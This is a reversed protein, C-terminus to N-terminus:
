LPRGKGNSLRAIVREVVSEPIRLTYYRRKLKRGLRGSPQGIKIVGPEDQFMKRVKDVSFALKEAIQQPTFCQEM